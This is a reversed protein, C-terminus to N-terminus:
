PKMVRFIESFTAPRTIEIPIHLRRSLDGTSILGRIQHKDFDVVLCQQEGEERLVAIIDAISSHELTQFELAKVKHRPVMLDSVLIEDRASGKTILPMLSQDNLKQIDITGVFESASDVVLALQLHSKRMLLEAEVAPISGEIISPHYNKFDTFITLASSDLDIDNFEEPQVLHNIADTDMLKLTAM